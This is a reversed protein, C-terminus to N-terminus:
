SNSLVKDLCKQKRISVLEISRDGSMIVLVHLILM